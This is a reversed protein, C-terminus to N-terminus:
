DRQSRGTWALEDGLEEYKLTEVKGFVILDTAADFDRAFTPWPIGALALVLIAVVAKMRVKHSIARVGAFPAIPSRCNDARPVAIVPM